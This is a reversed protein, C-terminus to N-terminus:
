RTFVGGAAVFADFTKCRDPTSCVSHLHSTSGIVMLQENSTGAQPWPNSGTSPDGTRMFALWFDQMQRSASWDAATFKRNGLGLTGFAYPVDATHFAGFGPQGVISPYDRDFLYAYVAQGAVSKRRAAWRDVRFLVSDRALEITSAQAQEDTAHPYLALLRDAVSAYRKRVNAIFDEPTAKNVFPVFVDKATFGTLLPVPSQITEGTSGGSGALVRGDVNPALRVEPMRFTGDPPQSSSPELTAAYIREPPLARMAALDTVGLRQQYIRGMREADQLTLDPFGQGSGSMAIARHILGRAEPAFLLANVAGAGASQGAITVNEPDGGFKAINGKVWKLAAIMDQVAFNGSTGNEATLEPLALFGFAALRYNITVVVAGRSALNAGRYIPITGSGEGFGGGHIYFLVPLSKASRQRPAWVNLFLCDENMNRGDILFEASYPGFLRPQGQYCEAADKTADRVGQWPAPTLPPKWRLDGVPPKAFPIGLWARSQGEIMGRVKGQQTVIVLGKAEGAHSVRPLAALMLLILLLLRM